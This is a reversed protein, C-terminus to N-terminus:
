EGNTKNAHCQWCLVRMEGYLLTMAYKSLDTEINILPHNGEHTHDIEYVLKQKKTPKGDKKIRYDKESFGMRKDCVSCLVDYKKRKDPGNHPVRAQILFQKRSTSHWIKRMASRVLANLDGRSVGLIPDIVKPKGM